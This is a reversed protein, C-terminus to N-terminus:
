GLLSVCDLCFNLSSDTSVKLFVWPATLVEVFRLEKRTGELVVQLKESDSDSETRMHEPLGVGRGV